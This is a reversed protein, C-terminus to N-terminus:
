GVFIAFILLLAAVPALLLGVARTSSLLSLGTLALGVLFALSGLSPGLGVLPPEGYEAWFLAIGTTHALLGAVIVLALIRTPDPRGKAFRLGFVAAAVVYLVAATAYAVIHM